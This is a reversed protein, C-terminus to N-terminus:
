RHQDGIARVIVAWILKRLLQDGQHDDFAEGTFRHGDVSGPEIDTVPQEHGVMRAREQQDQFMTPDAFGVVDAAPDFTTIDVDHGRDAIGQIM